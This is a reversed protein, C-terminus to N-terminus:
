PSSRGLTHSRRSRIKLQPMARHGQKRAEKDFATTGRGSLTHVLTTFSPLGAGSCVDTPYPGARAVGSGRSGEVGEGGGGKGKQRRGIGINYELCSLLPPEAGGCSHGVLSSAEERTGLFSGERTGGSQIGLLSSADERRVLAGLVQGEGMRHKLKGAQTDRGHEPEEEPEEEPQLCSKRPVEAVSSNRPLETSHSYELLSCTLFQCAQGPVTSYRIGTRHIGPGRQTQGWSISTTLACADLLSVRDQGRGGTLHRGRVEHVLHVHNGEHALLQPAALLHVARRCEVGGEGFHVRRHEGRELEGRSM